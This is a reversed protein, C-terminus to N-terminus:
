VGMDMLEKRALLDMYAAKGWVEDPFKNVIDHPVAIKIMGTPDTTNIVKGHPKLVEAIIGFM